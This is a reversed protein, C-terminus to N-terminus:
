RRFRAVAALAAVLRASAPDDFVARDGAALVNGAVAADHDGVGLVAVEFDDDFHVVIEPGVAAKEEAAVVFPLGILVQDIIVVLPLM